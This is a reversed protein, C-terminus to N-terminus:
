KNVVCSLYIIRMYVFIYIYIYIICKNISLLYFVFICPVCVYIYLCVCIKHQKAIGNKKREKKKQRSPVNNKQLQHSWLLDICCILSQNKKLQYLQDNRYNIITIM